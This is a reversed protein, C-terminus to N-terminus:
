LKRTVVFNAGTGLVDALVVDGPAVPSRLVVGDLLKVAEFILAKPIAVDTKVPCRPCVAGEIKVTSTIVRRPDTLEKRGYEAGRECGNGTVAYGNEEDVRLHCGKPCVICILEKM